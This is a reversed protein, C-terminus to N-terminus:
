QMEPPILDDPVEIGQDRYYRVAGAHLPVAAESVSNEPTVRSVAPHSQAVEELSDYYAVLLNYVVEEPVDARVGLLGAQWTGITKIAVPQNTYTNAEIYTESLFPYREQIRAIDEDSFSVFTVPRTASAEVVGGTPNSGTGRYSLGVIRRDAYAALADHLTAEYLDPKIGLHEFIGMTIGTSGGGTPGPNFAKGELDQLTEIGSDAAVFIQWATPSYNAFTRIVHDKGFRENILAADVTALDTRQANLRVMNEESGGSEQVVINYGTRKAMQNSHQVAWLYQSTGTPTASFVLNVRDQALAAGQLGLAVIAGSGILGVLRLAISNKRM